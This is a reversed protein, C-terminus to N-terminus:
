LLQPCIPEPSVTLWVAGFFTLAKLLDSITNSAHYSNAENGPEGWVYRLCHFALRPGSVILNM